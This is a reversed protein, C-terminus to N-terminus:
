TKTDEFTSEDDTNHLCKKLFNDCATRMWESKSACQNASMGAKIKAVDNTRLLVSSANKKRPDEELIKKGHETWYAIASRIWESVSRMGMESASARYLEYQGEFFTFACPMHKDTSVPRGVKKPSTNM